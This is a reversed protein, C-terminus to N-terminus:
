HKGAGSMAPGSGTESVATGVSLCDLVEVGRVGFLESFGLVEVDRVGLFESFVAVDVELAVLEPVSASSLESSLCHILISRFPVVRWRDVKTAVRFLPGRRADTVLRSTNSSVSDPESPSRIPVSMMGVSPLNSHCLRSGGESLLDPM